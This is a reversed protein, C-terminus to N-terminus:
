PYNSLALVALSTTETNTLTGDHSYTANYGTYFGGSPAQMSLLTSLARQDVTQNLVESSYVFLALKYTQYQCSQDYPLDTIGVGNFDGKGLNYEGTANTPEKSNAFCIAKLFAVDAYDKDSLLGSGNNLTAKITIGNSNSVTYDTSANVECPPSSLLVYQNTASGLPSSYGGLSTLIDAAMTTLTSNSHAHGYQLLVMAALFNDSYLWFVSSNPTEPILGVSQNYNAALYNVARALHENVSSNTAQAASYTVTEPPSPCPSGNISSLLLGVSSVALLVIIVLVVVTKSPRRRSRDAREETDPAAM